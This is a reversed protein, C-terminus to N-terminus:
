DMARRQAARNSVSVTADPNLVVTTNGGLSNTVYGDITEAHMTAGSLARFELQDDHQIWFSRRVSGGPPITGFDAECGGGFVRVGSLPQPSGNRVTVTYRTEIQLVSSVIGVAVPFNSLLLAACGLTSLWLRRRPQEPTRFALWCFRALALAGICFVALGGYLTFVGAFMLWEWRTVLWLLFISVGTLLPLAGCILAVRYAPNM